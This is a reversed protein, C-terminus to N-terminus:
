HMQICFRKVFCSDQKDNRSNRDAEENMDIM